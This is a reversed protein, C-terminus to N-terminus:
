GGWCFRRRCNTPHVLFTLLFHFAILSFHVTKVSITSQHLSSRQSDFIPSALGWPNACAFSLERIEKLEGREFRLGNEIRRQDIVHM